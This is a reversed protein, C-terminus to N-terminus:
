RDEESKINRSFENQTKSLITDIKGFNQMKM